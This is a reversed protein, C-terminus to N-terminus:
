FDWRTPSGTFDGQQIGFAWTPTVRFCSSTSPDLLEISYDTEYKANERALMKILSGPNIVRRAIGEMVVPHDGDDSTVVCGRNSELNRAKRQCAAARHGPGAAPARLRANVPPVVETGDRGLSVVIADDILSPL